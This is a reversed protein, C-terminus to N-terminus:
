QVRVLDLLAPGSPPIEVKARGPEILQARRARLREDVVEARVLAPLDEPPPEIAPAADLQLVVHVGFSTRFPGALDGRAALGRVGEMFEPVLSGGGPRVVRGDDAIPGLDEAKLELGGADVSEALELFARLAEDDAASFPQSRAVSAAQDVVERVETAVEEATHWVSEGPSNKPVLVVAHVLRRSAPRRLELWRRAVVKEVEEDTLPRAEEERRLEAFLLRAAVSASASADGLGRRKAEAAFVADTIARDRAVEPSVAQAAAIRAVTDRTIPLGGVRAVVDGGLDVRPAPPPPAESCALHGATLWVVAARLRM